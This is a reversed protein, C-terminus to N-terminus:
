AKLPLNDDQTQANNPTENLAQLIIWAVQPVIANGLGRLRDVRQPIGDDMGCIPSGAVFPLWIDKQSVRELLRLTTQGLPPKGRRQGNPYAAIWIRERRHPACVANAPICMWEADYGMEALDGLVRGLGRFTLAAVNEVILYRPRVEGVLRALERWLGSREGDLGAGEGSASIDQCPFGGTLLETGEYQKGDLNRVDDYIKAKPWHRALVRQAWPDIECFGKTEYGCWAAALAFGGIGSFVDLHGRASPVGLLDTSRIDDSEM